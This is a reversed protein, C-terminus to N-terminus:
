RHKKQFIKALMKPMIMLGLLIGKEKLKLYRNFINKFTNCRVFRLASRYILNDKRAEFQPLALLYAMNQYLAFRYAQRRLQPFNEEVYDLVTFANRQMDIIAKGYGSSISNKRVFYYYGVEGVFYIRDIKEILEIMFLLDENLTGEVFRLNEILQKPFLKTCVSVDGVHLLLEELYNQALLVENKTHPVRSSRNEGSEYTRVYMINSIAFPNDKLEKVLSEYMRDSIFDDSDVFGIYNGKAFELGANRASSLGGNKKHIVVIRQDQRSYEDCIEGSNDTSGDDVLIIELNKYSQALISDICRNLYKEVNYVPVIVTILSDM